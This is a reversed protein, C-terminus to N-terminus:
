RVVNCYNMKIDDPSKSIEHIRNEFSVEENTNVKRVTSKKRLLEEIEDQKELEEKMLQPRILTAYYGGKQM